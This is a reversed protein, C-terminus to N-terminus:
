NRLDSEDSFEGGESPLRRTIQYPDRAASTLRAPRYDVLQGIKFAYDAMYYKRASVSQTETSAATMTSPTMRENQSAREFTTGARNRGAAHARNPNRRRPPHSADCDKLRSIAGRATYRILNNEETALQFVDGVRFGRHGRGWLGFANVISILGM